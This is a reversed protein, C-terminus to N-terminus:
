ELVKRATVIGQVWREEVVPKNMMLVKESSLAVLGVLFLIILRNKKFLM